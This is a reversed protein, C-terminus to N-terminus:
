RAIKKAAQVLEQFHGESEGDNLERAKALGQEAFQLARSGERLSLMGETAAARVRMDSPAREILRQFVDWAQNAEKRRVLVQGRRLEFENRRRGENNECDFREGEEVRDLADDLRGDHLAKQVLYFFIPGRDAPRTSATRSVLNDAFNEALEDADLKQAARYAEELQDDPLDAPKLAALESAAMSSVDLTARTSKAAAELLGLKRRLRDFDYRARVVVACDELFAIVGKVKKRLKRDAAANIPSQHELAILPRQIWVEEFFYEMREHLRKTLEEDSINGVPFVVAESLIESFASTVKFEHHNPAFAGPHLLQLEQRLRTVADANVHWLQVVGQGVAIHAQLPSAHAPSGTLLPPKETVLGVIASQQETKFLLLRQDKGLQELLPVVQNGDQIPLVVWHELHDTQEEMGRGCRLVEALAWAAAAHDENAELPVYRDIAEVAKPHEGLWAYALALNYWAAADGSRDRTLDEFIAALDSLRIDERAALTREWAPPVAGSETQQPSLLTYEQRALKPLPSQEGFFRDLAARLEEQGPANHIAIKLAARAAVPRHLYSECEAVLAYIQALLDRAELDYLAAARRYLMLAGQMEGEAQRMMGKLLHGFPYNANLELAKQLAIESDELKGLQFLLHAKRGWAEPNDPHKAVIEDMIRLASDHQGQDEQAYAKELEQYLPQCCWKFKKGSGCPCPAYSDIAM